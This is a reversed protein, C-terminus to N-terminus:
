RKALFSNTARIRLDEQCNMLDRTKDKCHNKLWKLIFYVRIKSESSSELSLSFLVFLSNMLQDINM